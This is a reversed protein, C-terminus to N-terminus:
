KKADEPIVIGRTIPSSKENFKDSDLRNQYSREGFSSGDSLVSANIELEILFIKEETKKHVLKKVERFDVNVTIKECMENFEPYEEPNLGLEELTYMRFYGAGGDDNPLSITDWTLEEGSGAKSNESAVKNRYEIFAKKIDNSIVSFATENGAIEKMQRAAYEPADVLREAADYVKWGAGGVAAAVATKLFIGLTKRKEEDDVKDSTHPDTYKTGDMKVVNGGKDKSNDGGEISGM